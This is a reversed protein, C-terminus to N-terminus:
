RPRGLVGWPRAERRSAAGASGVSRASFGAISHRPLRRSLDSASRSASLWRTRQREGSQQCGPAHYEDDLPAILAEELTMSM